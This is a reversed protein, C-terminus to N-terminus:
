ADNAKEPQIERIFALLIKAELEFVNLQTRSMSRLLTKAYDHSGGVICELILQKKTM